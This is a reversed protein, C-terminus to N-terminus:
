NKLVKEFQIPLDIKFNIIKKNIPNILELEYAHLYLRNSKNGYKSDGLISHGIDKMHVRIQNKRGTLINIDLLTYKNNSKIVKYETKALKGTKSSYVNYNKDEQLYSEIYGDKKVIGEVVAYYKRKKVIENWNDQYIKKVRESKAFMVLGSTDKDLRHITFIRSKKNNIKVYDSVLHYLTKEKEKETSITLLGSPKNVVIINKDEYIIILDSKKNIFINDEKKLVYNYKTIVKNNIYISKNTLMAKAKKRNIKFNEILYNLLEKEENVIYKM